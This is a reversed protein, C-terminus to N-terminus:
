GVSGLGILTPLRVGFLKLWDCCPWLLRSKYKTALQIHASKPTPGDSKALQICILWPLYLFQSPGKGLGSAPLSCIRSREDTRPNLCFFDHLQKQKKNANGQCTLLGM